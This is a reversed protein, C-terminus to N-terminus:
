REECAQGHQILEGISVFSFGRRSGEALIGPLAQITRTASSIGDHLIIITGPALNKQVLWRIYRVPPRIPDHPYAAGLVTIYGHRRALEVQRPRAWGGPPRFLKTRSASRDSLGAAAETRQLNRLFERDSDFVMLGNRSYHNGVEHGASKIRAVLEPNRAAREGILFFTAKANHSELIDLVQPTFVPVPGDDFSLAVVKHDTRVRYLLQPSLRELAGLAFLPEAWFIFLALAVGIGLLIPLM